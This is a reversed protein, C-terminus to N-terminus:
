KDLLKSKDIAYLVTDGSTAGYHRMYFCYDHNLNLLLSPIRWIDGRKHYVSIALVPHQGSIIQKAGHLVKEEYGEVDMKIFGIKKGPIVNDLLQTWIASDGNADLHVMEGKGEICLEEEVDSLAVSFITVNPYAALNKKCLEYNKRDPEFAYINAAKNNKRRLYTLSDKGDYCRIDIFAGDDDTLREMCEPLFYIDKMNEIDFESLIYIDERYVGTKLLDGIIEETNAMNSILIKTRYRYRKAFQELNVVKIGNCSDERCNKDIFGDWKYEPFLETLRKGRIGAGYIYKPCDNALFIHYLNKGGPTQLLINKMYKHNETLSFLLRNSFIMESLPDMMRNHITEIADAFEQINQLDDKYPFCIRERM